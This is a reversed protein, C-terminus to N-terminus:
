TSVYTTVEPLPLPKTSNNTRLYFTYNDNGEKCYIPHDAPEITVQCVDRADFEHFTVTLFAHVSHSLHNTIVDTLKLEFGDRDQSKGLTKYDAELGFVEKLGDPGDHDRVGILLVGGHKSNLMGAISKAIVKELEKNTNGQKIDWRMSSK